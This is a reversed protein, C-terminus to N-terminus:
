AENGKHEWWREIGAQFVPDLRDLRHLENTLELLERQWFPDMRVVAALRFSLERKVSFTPMAAPVHPLTQLINKFLTLSRKRRMRLLKQDEQPVDEYEEVRAQYYLTEGAVEEITSFRHVGRVLIMSRGDPLLQHRRIEAVTGIRGKENLFPGAEDSDHYLLGFRKDTEMIQSVMERYRPEFIHLPIVTGPFLVLPLPFLPLRFLEM